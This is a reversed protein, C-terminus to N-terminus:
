GTAARVLTGSDSMEAIEPAREMTPQQKAWWSNAAEETWEDVAVRRLALDLEEASSPRDDPDKALLNLILRDLDAPVDFPSKESPSRPTESAHKIIMAMPTDGEFLMEGTLLWYAVCGVAYVDSRADAPEGQIVEPAMYAPTGMVVGMKSLNDAPETPDVASHKRVLGFDLVKVFDFEFARKCVFINAPKVDRHILGMRHAEALSLCFLPTPVGSKLNEPACSKKTKVDGEISPIVLYSLHFPSHLSNQAGPLM